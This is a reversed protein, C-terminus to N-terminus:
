NQGKFSCVPSQASCFSCLLKQKLNGCCHVNRAAALKQPLPLLSSSGKPEDAWLPPLLLKAKTGEARSTASDGCFGAPGPEPCRVLACASEQDRYSVEKKWERTVGDKERKSRWDKYTRQIYGREMQFVYCATSMSHCMAKLELLM